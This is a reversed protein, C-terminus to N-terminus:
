CSRTFRELLGLLTDPHTYTRPRAFGVWGSTHPFGLFVFLAGM